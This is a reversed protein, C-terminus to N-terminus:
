VLGLAEMVVHCLRRVREASAANTEELGELLEGSCLVQGLAFLDDDSVKPVSPTTEIHLQEIRDFLYRIARPKLKALMIDPMQFLPHAMRCDNPDCVSVCVLEFMVQADSEEALAKRYDNESPTRLGIVIPHKPVEKAEELWVDPELTETRPAPLKGGTPKARAALQERLNAM